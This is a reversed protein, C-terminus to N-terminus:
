ASAGQTSRCNLFPAVDTPKKAALILWDRFQDVTGLRGFEPEGYEVKTIQLVRNGPIEIFITSRAAFWSRRLRKWRVKVGYKSWDLQLNERCRDCTWTKRTGFDNSDWSCHCGRKDDPPSCSVSRGDFLWVMNGYFEERERIVAPSIPSHQLEVVCRNALVIDARHPGITVEQNEVPVCAKWDRHWATEGESWPDCDVRSAHAWHHVVISGCKGIVASRCIPCSAHEGSKEPERRMKTQQDIAYRM